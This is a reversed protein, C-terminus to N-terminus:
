AAAGVLAPEDDYSALLVSAGVLFAHPFLDNTIRFFAADTVDDWDRGTTENRNM